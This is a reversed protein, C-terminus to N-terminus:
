LFLHVNSNPRAARQPLTKRLQFATTIYQKCVDDVVTEGTVLDRYVKNETEYAFFRSLSGTIPAVIRCDRPVGAEKFPSSKELSFMETLYYYSKEHRILVIYGTPEFEVLFYCYVNFAGSKYEISKYNDQNTCIVDITYDTFISQSNRPFFNKMVAKDLKMLQKQLPQQREYEPRWSQCWLIGWTLLVCVLSLAVLQWRKRTPVDALSYRRHMGQLLNPSFSQM